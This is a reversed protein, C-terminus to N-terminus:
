RGYQKKIQGIGAYKLKNENKEVDIECFFQLSWSSEFESRWLIPLFASWKVWRWRGGVQGTQKNHNGFKRRWM